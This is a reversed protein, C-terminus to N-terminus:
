AEDGEFITKYRKEMEKILYYCNGHKAHGVWSNWSQDIQEKTIKGERYLEKFKKLKRRMREKSERRLKMIVKGTNTLYFHFGLFDFGNKIPFIHTKHNLKLDYDELFFQIQKKCYQLYEKDPDILVFDDMYRIYHKIRLKEKVFHDFPSLYILALPQSTQNGLPLGYGTNTSDIIMDLLWLVDEDKILKRYIVKLKQHNISDFYKEIDAKLVYGNLGYKRYHRRLFEKTREIGAHVGKGKRCAYNDYIYHKEFTPYLVNDCLNRQVVKDIFKTSKILRKKPEFVYFENYEGIRYQKTLLQHRLFWTNYLADNQYRATSNKWQKGKGSKVNAEYLNNFDCVCDFNM